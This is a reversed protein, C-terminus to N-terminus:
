PYLPEYHLGFDRRVYGVSCLSFGEDCLLKGTKVCLFYVMVYLPSGLVFSSEEENILKKRKKRRYCIRNKKKKKHWCIFHLRGDTSNSCSISNSSYSILVATVLVYGYQNISQPRKCDDELRISWRLYAFLSVAGSGAAQLDDLKEKRDRESNGLGGGVCVGGWVPLLCGCVAFFIYLKRCGIGRSSATKGRYLQQVHTPWDTPTSEDVALVQFFFFFITHCCIVVFLFVLYVFICSFFNGTGTRGEVKEPTNRELRRDIDIQWVCVNRELLFATMMVVTAHGGSVSEELM